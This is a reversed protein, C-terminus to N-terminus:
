IRPDAFTEDGVVATSADDANTKEAVNDQPVSSQAAEDTAM